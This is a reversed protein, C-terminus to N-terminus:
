GPFLSAGDLFKPMKRRCVLPTWELNDFSLCYESHASFVVGLATVNKVKNNRSFLRTSAFRWDVHFHLVPFYLEPDSHAEYNTYYSVPVLYTQGIVPPKILETSKEM